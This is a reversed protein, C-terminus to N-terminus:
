QQSRCTNLCIYPKGSKIDPLDWLKKLDLFWQICEELSYNLANNNKIYPEIQSNGPHHMNKPFFGTFCCPYVSGDAALYIEKNNISICNLETSEDIKLNTGNSSDFWTYHSHLLSEVLPPTDSWPDGLWYEFKGTRSYVPGQNRGQDYIVFEKFGIKDALEKCVDLQHQNHKFPIFKWVANGNNNILGKANDIIKNWDTNKRYLSHTDDLGDIGFFVTIREHALQAWWQPERVSGNTEIIINANSYRIFFDVIELADKANSFDGLNGNFRINNIQKLFDISFIKQIDALFLETLPYGSNHAYGRYNRM